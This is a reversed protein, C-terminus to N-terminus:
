VNVSSFTKNGKADKSVIGEDQFIGYRVEIGGSSLKKVEEDLIKQLDDLAESQVYIEVVWDFVPEVVAPEFDLNLDIRKYLVYGIFKDYDICLIESVIEKLKNGLEYRKENFAADGVRLRAAVVFKQNSSTIMEAHMDRTLQLDKFDRAATIFVGLNRVSIPWKVSHVEPNDINMFTTFKDLKWINKSTFLLRTSSTQNETKTSKSSIVKVAGGEIFKDALNKWVRKTVIGPALSSTFSLFQTINAEAM